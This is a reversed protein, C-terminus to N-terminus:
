RPSRRVLCGVVVLMAILVVGLVLVTSGVIVAGVKFKCSGCYRSGPSVEGSCWRCGNNVAIQVPPNDVLIVPAQFNAPPPIAPAVDMPPAIPPVAGGPPNNPPAFGPPGENPPLFAGPPMNGPPMNGPPLNSPPNLFSKGGNIFHVGCNPCNDVGPKFPSTTTAVIKNCKSCRWDYVITPPGGPFKTGPPRNFGPPNFGPPKPVGPPQGPPFQAGVQSLGQVLVGLPLLMALFIAIRRRRSSPVMAQGVQVVTWHNQFIRNPIM